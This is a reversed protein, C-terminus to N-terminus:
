GDRRPRVPLPQGLDIGEPGVVARYPYIEVGAAQAAYMLDAYEPDICAAPAFCHGDPRQVLYFMAAREGGAVIDMLERLHKRGRETAADPFCAADDEMMTVNKCEVWLPPLGDSWFCADLRSAGRVAERRCHSYGAAFPLRGAHFAAELLRNPVSTNVGVWFGGARDLGRPTPDPARLDEDAPRDALWVAEQTFRLKRAPNAAPSALVPAGPRLLGLMSGSNNSHIWVAEGQLRMEVSFRRYRRLFRGCVCPASFPLLPRPM